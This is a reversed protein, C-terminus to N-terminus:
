YHLSQVDAESGFNRVVKHHMCARTGLMKGEKKRKRNKETEGGGEGGGGESEGERM